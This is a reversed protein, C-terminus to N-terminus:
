SGILSYLQPKLYEGQSNVSFKEAREQIQKTLVERFGADNIFMTILKRAQAKNEYFGKYDDGLQEIRVLSKYAIIPKGVAMADLVKGSGLYETELGENALLCDCAYLYSPIEDYSIYGLQESISPLETDKYTKGAMVLNVNHNRKKIEEIVGICDWPILKMSLSGFFGFTIDGLGMSLRNKLVKDPQINAKFSPDITQRINIIKKPVVIDKAGGYWDQMMERSKTRRNYTKIGEKWSETTVFLADVHNYLWASYPYGMAVKPGPCKSLVYNNARVYYLDYGKDPLKIDIDKIGYDPEDPHFLQGNYYVDFITSLAKYFRIENIKDGGTTTLTRNNALLTYIKPKM